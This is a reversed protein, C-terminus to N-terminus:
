RLVAFAAAAASTASALESSIIQLLFFPSTAGTRRPLVQDEKATRRELRSQPRSWPYVAPLWRTPRHSQKKIPPLSISDARSTAVCTMSRQCMEPAIKSSVVPSHAGM